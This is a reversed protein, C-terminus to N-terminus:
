FPGCRRIERMYHYTKKIETVIKFPIKEFNINSSNRQCTLQSYFVVHGVDETNSHREINPLILRM